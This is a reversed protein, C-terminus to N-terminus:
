RNKYQPIRKEKYAKLGEKMDESRCVEQFCEIEKRLGEELSGSKLGESIARQAMRVCIQSNRLIKEALELAVEALKEPKTIIDILGIELAEQASILDGTLILRRARSSGILRVLRQTGGFGPIIGLNVEPQGFKARESALRIHCAMAIENGGGVCLGNIAAIIPKDLNEIKDCLKQGGRALIAGENPSSIAMIENIDVGSSFAREGTATIILIKASEDCNFNDISCDLENLLDMRLANVPPHDIVLLWANGNKQKQIELYKLKSKAILDM